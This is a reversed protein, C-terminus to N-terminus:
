KTKLRQQAIKLSRKHNNQPCYKGTKKSNERGYELKM